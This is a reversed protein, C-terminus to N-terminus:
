CVLQWYSANVRGNRMVPEALRTWHLLSDRLPKVNKYRDEIKKWVPHHADVKLAQNALEKLVPEVRERRATLFLTKVEIEGRSILQAALRIMQPRDLCQLQCISVILEEDSLTDRPPAIFHKLESCPRVVIRAGRANGVDVLWDEVCSSHPAPYKEALRKIKYRLPSLHSTLGLRKALINSEM